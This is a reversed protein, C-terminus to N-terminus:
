PPSMSCSGGGTSRTSPRSRMDSGNNERRRGPGVLLPQFSDKILKPLYAGTANTGIAVTLYLGILIWVRTDALASLKDSGCAEVRRRRCGHRM